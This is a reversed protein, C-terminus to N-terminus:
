KSQILDIDLKEIIVNGRSDRFSLYYNREPFFPVLERNRDGLDKAFVIPDNLGPSNYQFGSGLDSGYKDTSKIFILTNKLGMEQAKKMIKNDTEWFSDSYYTYLDPVRLFWAFGIYFCFIFLFVKSMTQEPCIKLLAFKKIILIIAKSSLIIIFPVSIFLFRPGLCLDQFFYFFYFIPAAIICCLFFYDNYGKKFFFPTAFLCLPLLAPFPWEFLNLNLTILNRLAQLAGRFPTHPPKDIISQESFGVTHEIGWRVQYGFLLPHGNTFYNYFLLIAFMSLLGMSFFILLHSQKKRLCSVLLYIAIPISIAAGDGPRINLIMGLSLGSILAYLVSNQNIAKKLTYLSLLIFFLTASHNMFSASMFLVFPSVCFFIVSLKAIPENYYYIACKYLLILSLSAFVPNVIWPAGIVIGLMLFFPYAPPYQSYWRNNLIINDAWYQFFDPVPPPAATLHGTLFIKAQFFQAISDQVHPVNGFVKYSFFITIIFIWCTTITLFLLPSLNQIKSCIALDNFRSSKSTALSYNIISFLFLIGIAAIILWELDKFPHYRLNSLYIAPTCTLLIFGTFIFFSLTKRPSNFFIKIGGTEAFLTNINWFILIFVFPLLFISKEPPVYGMELIIALIASVICLWRFTHHKKTLIM